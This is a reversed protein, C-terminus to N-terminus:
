QTVDGQVWGSYAMPNWLQFDQQTFHHVEKPRRWDLLYTYYQQGPRDLKRYSYAYLPNQYSVVRDLCRALSSVMFGLNNCNAPIQSIQNKCDQVEKDLQAKTVYNGNQQQWVQMIDPQAQGYDYAGRTQSSSSSKFGKSVAGAYAGLIQSSKTQYAVLQPTRPAQACGVAIGLALIYILNLKKM